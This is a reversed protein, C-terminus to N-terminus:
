CASVSSCAPQALQRLTHRCGLVGGAATLLAQAVRLQERVLAAYLVKNHRQLQGLVAAAAAATAAGDSLLVSPDHADAAATGGGPALPAAGLQDASGGAAGAGGAAAGCGAAAAPRPGAAVAASGAADAGACLASSSCCIREDCAGCVRENDYAATPAAAPAAGRSLQGGAPALYASPEAEWTLPDGPMGGGGGGSTDLLWAFPDEESVASPSGASLSASLSGSLSPASLAAASGVSAAPSAQVGPSVAELQPPQVPPLAAPQPQAVAAQQPLLQPPVAPAATVASSAGSGSAAPSAATATSAAGPGAAKRRRSNHVELMRRCSKKLGDFDALPHATGCRQCFRVEHGLRLFSDATKHFSCIHNRQLSSSSPARFCHDTSPSPLTPPLRSSLLIIMNLTTICPQGSSAAALAAVVGDMSGRCGGPQVAAPQLPRQLLGRGPVPAEQVPPAQLCPLRAPPLQDITAQSSKVVGESAAHLQM